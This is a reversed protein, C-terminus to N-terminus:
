CKAEIIVFLWTQYVATILISSIVVAIMVEIITFGKQMNRKSVIMVQKVEMKNWGM